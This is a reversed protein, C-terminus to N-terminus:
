RRIFKVIFKALKDINKFKRAEENSGFFFEVLIYTDRTKCIGYGGRDSSKEVYKVGRNKQSYEKSLDDLFLEALIKAKPAYKYVLCECGQVNRDGGNFHLELIYNYNHKNIEEVIPKMEQIYNNNPERCYIDITDDISNIKDVISKFYDYESMNLFPSYAGKSRSNHGVILAVKM